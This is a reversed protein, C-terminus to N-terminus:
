SERPQREEFFDAYRDTQHAIRIFALQDTSNKLRMKQRWHWNAANPQSNGAVNPAGHSGAIQLYTTFNTSKRWRRARKMKRVKLDMAMNWDDTRKTEDLQFPKRQKESTVNRRGKGAACRYSGIVECVCTVTM